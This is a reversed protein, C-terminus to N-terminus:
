FMIFHPIEDILSNQIVEEFVLCEIRQYERRIVFLEQSLKAHNNDVAIVKEDIM